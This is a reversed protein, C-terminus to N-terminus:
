EQLRRRTEALARRTFDLMDGAPLGSWHRLALAAQTVLLEIGDIVGAGSAEAARCFETGGRLYAFDACLQGARPEFPPRGPQYMGLPTANVAIDPDGAQEGYPAHAYETGPFCNSLRACLATARAPDRALFLVSKAGARGLAWGASGAAGGAGFVAAARGSASYARAEFAQLLARADTNFGELGARGFRAANAAGAGRAAPDVVGLLPLVAAKHPITVCFGHWGSLRATDIEIALDAPEAERLEFQIRQGTLDGLVAYVLPSLSASLPKGFLGARIIKEQRPV